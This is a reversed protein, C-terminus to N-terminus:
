EESEYVINNKQGPFPKDHKNEGYAIEDPIKDLFAKCYVRETIENENDQKVGIFFKCKRTFCTPEAIM